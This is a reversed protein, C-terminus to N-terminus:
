RRRAIVICVIGAIALLAGAAIFEYYTHGTGSEKLQRTLFAGVLTSGLVFFFAGLWRLVTAKLVTAKLKPPDTRNPELSM